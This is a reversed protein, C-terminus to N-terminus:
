ILQKNILCIVLRINNKGEMRILHVGRAVNKEKSLVEVVIYACNPREVEVVDYRKNEVEFSELLTLMDLLALTNRPYPTKCLECELNKWYIFTTNGTNKIHLKSKLWTQLCKVHILKM